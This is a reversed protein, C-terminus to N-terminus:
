GRMGAVRSHDAQARALWSAVIVLGPPGPRILETATAAQGEALRRQAAVMCAVASVLKDPCVRLAAEALKLQAQAEQIDSRQLYVAPWRSVPRRTVHETIAVAAWRAEAAEGALEVARSLRGRLAEVLALYGLCDAREDRTRRPASAAAGAGFAAAAADLGGAWLKVAAGSAMAGPRQIEPHRARVSEPLQGILDEARAAAATAAM